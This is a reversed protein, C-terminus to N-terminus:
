EMSFLPGTGGILECSELDMGVGVITHSWRGDVCNSQKDSKANSSEMRCSRSSGVLPRLHNSTSSHCCSRFVIVSGGFDSDVLLFACHNLNSEIECSEINATSSSLSAVSGDWEVVVLSLEVLDVTSNTLRLLTEEKVVSKGDVENLRAQQTPHLSTSNGRLSVTLSNVELNLTPLGGRPLLIRQDLRLEDNPSLRLLAALPSLPVLFSLTSDSVFPQGRTTRNSENSLPHNLLTDEDTSPTLRSQIM